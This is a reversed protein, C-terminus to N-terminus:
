DIEGCHGTIGGRLREFTADTRIQLRLLDHTEQISPKNGPHVAHSREQTFFLDSGRMRDEATASRDFRCCLRNFNTASLKMAKKMSMQTNTRLVDGIKFAQM